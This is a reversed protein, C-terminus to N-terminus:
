RGWLGAKRQKALAEIRSFEDKYGTNPEIAMTEAYGAELILAQLM